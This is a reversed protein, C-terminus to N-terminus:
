ISLHDAAPKHATVVAHRHSRQLRDWVAVWAAAAFVWWFVSLPFIYRPIAELFLHVLSTYLILGSLPLAVRWQRRTMWLGVVGALLSTYHFVYMSLKPWFEDGQTLRLLGAPTRDSRLWDLALNKLSEGHFFMTGHPQLYAGALKVFRRAIWGLPDKGIAQAAADTYMEQQEWVQTSFQGDAHDALTADIESPSTWETAGILLFASLGQAGIVPTRWKVENYITWISTVLAYITLLLAAYKLGRRWGYVLLLHIALGLPFLLLVARTMTALALTLSVLVIRVYRGQIQEPHKVMEVYATLGGAVLFIYLTETLLQATELVYVPAVAVAGAALLGARDDDTLTRAMRYAFWCTATAMLVQAFRMIIVAGAGPFFTQWFGAWLLYLPASQPPGKVTDHFLKLGHDLYWWTDGGAPNYPELPDQMWVVALRLVLAVGLILFLWRHTKASTFLTKLPDPQSM